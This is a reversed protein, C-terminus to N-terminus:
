GGLVALASTRIQGGPVQHPIPDQLSAPDPQPVELPPEQGPQPNTQSRCIPAVFTEELFDILNDIASALGPPNWTIDM